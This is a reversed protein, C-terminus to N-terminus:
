PREKLRIEFQVRGASDGPNSSQRVLLVESYHGTRELEQLFKGVVESRGAEAMMQLEGARRRYRLEVLSVDHPMLAELATMAALLSGNHPGSLQNISAISEKVAMLRDRPPLAAADIGALRSNFQALRAKLAPAEQYLQGARVWLFVAAFVLMASLAWLGIAIYPAARGPRVIFNTNIKM